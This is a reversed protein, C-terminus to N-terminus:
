PIPCYRLFLSIVNGFDKPDMVAKLGLIILIGVVVIIVRMGNSM